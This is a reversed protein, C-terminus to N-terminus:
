VSKLLLGCEIVKGVLMLGKNAEVDLFEVSGDTCGTSSGADSDLGLVDCFPNLELGRNFEPVLISFV